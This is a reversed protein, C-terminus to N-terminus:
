DLEDVRDDMTTRAGLRGPMYGPDASNSHEIRAADFESPHEITPDGAGGLTGLRQAPAPEIGEHLGVSEANFTGDPDPDTVTPVEIGYHRRIAHVDFDDDDVKPSDDVLEKTLTTRLVGDEEHLFDHPIAHRSKFVHGTEVIACGDREGVVTGLTHDDSTVVEKGEM